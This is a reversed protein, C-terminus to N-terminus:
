RRGDSGQRAPARPRARDASDTRASGVLPALRVDLIRDQLTDLRRAMQVGARSVPSFTDTAARRELEQRATVLAGLDSSCHMWVISTSAFSARCRDRERTSPPLRAVAAEIAQECAASRRRARGTFQTSDVSARRRAARRRRVESSRSETAHVLEAAAAFDLSAAMGKITHLARFNRRRRTDERPRGALQALARRAGSLLSRAEAAFLAVYRARRADSMWGARAAGGRARAGAPVAQRRFGQCRGPDGRGGAVAPGDRQVDPHARRSRAAIIARVADIGGMDPMVIDMTVLDPKLTKYREVAQLGSEAEGVVEYGAGTLIDAIMTRMFIADDCILIRQAM